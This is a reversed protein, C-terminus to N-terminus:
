ALLHREELSAAPYKERTVMVAGVGRGHTTAREREDGEGDEDGRAAYSEAEPLQVSQRLAASQVRLERRSQGGRRRAYARQHM